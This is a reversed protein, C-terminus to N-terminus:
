YTGLKGIRKTWHEAIVFVSYGLIWFMATLCALILIIEELTFMAPVAMLIARAGILTYTLPIILSLTRLYVPIATLPYNVPSILYILSSLFDNLVDPDKLLMIVAALLFAFGQFSTIMLVVLLMVPLLAELPYWISFVMAFIVFQIAAQITATVARSLSGGLLISFRTAPSLYLSELTGTYQEWRLANAMGWIASGVYSYIVAGIVIFQIFDGSGIASGLIGSQYGGSIAIGALIFPMVWLVPVVGWFVLELPYRVEIILDKKAIEMAIRFSEIGRGLNIKM